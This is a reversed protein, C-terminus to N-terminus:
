FGEPHLRNRIDDFSDDILLEGNRFMPRLLNGPADAETMTHGDDYMLKGDEGHYVVCMGRQSKKGASHAGRDTKPDKFMFKETDGIM